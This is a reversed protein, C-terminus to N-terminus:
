NRKQWIKPHISAELTAFSHYGALTKTGREWEPIDSESCDQDTLL